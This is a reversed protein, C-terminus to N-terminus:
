IAKAFLKPNYKPFSFDEITKGMLWQQGMAANLIIPMRKKTNHIEAMLDNADTTIISVTSLASEDKPNIWQNYIGGLAFVGSESLEIRYQMKNKGKVDLWKWEYFGDVLILCRNEVSTKFSAKERLTEIKANLTMKQIGSDKSWSPILGWSAATVLTSSQDLLVPISPHSFGNVMGQVLFDSSKIEANFKSKVEKANIQTSIFFCM